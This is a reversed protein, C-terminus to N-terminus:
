YWMEWRFLARMVALGGSQTEVTRGRGRDNPDWTMARSKADLVQQGDLSTPESQQIGAIAPQGNQQRMDDDAPLRWVEDHPVGQNRYDTGEDRRPEQEEDVWHWPHKGWWTGYEGQEDRTEKAADANWRVWKGYGECSKRHLIEAEEEWAGEVDEKRVLPACFISFHHWWIGKFAQGDQSCSGSADCGEEMVGNRGMGAWRYRVFPNEENRNEWGTANILNRILQHGDQLYTLSSTADWLGRLGSLIVGQNYTYVKEDRIDCQGTGHSGNKGGRYDRVHFGDVYLGLANTMNSEKLWNYAKVANDLHQIDHAKAPPITGDRGDEPSVNSGRISFPSPNDDGPFYLYMGVSAAIFLQNTIANKYPALYPNWIMGGNCLSTDWGHSALDYFVRARHAFQPIFQQAYWISTNFEDAQDQGEPVSFTHHLRSHLKIFKVSELWGLVVWLMDDYAQTRLSFANEGHYFSTIQTFYQNIMNEYSQTEQIKLNNGKATEIMTYSLSDTIATLTASIHTSMVAATWDIASPWTGPWIQFYHSQMVTLADILASFTALNRRSGCPNDKALPERDSLVEPGLSIEAEVKLLGQEESEHLRDLVGADHEVPRSSWLSFASSKLVLICICLFYIFCASAGRRKDERDIM